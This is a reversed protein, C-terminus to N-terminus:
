RHIEKMLSTSSISGHMVVKFGGGGLGKGRGPQADRAGEEGLPPRWTTSIGM